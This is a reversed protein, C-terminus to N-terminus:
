RRIKRRDLRRDRRREHRSERARNRDDRTAKANRSDDKDAQNVTANETVAKTEEATAITTMSGLMVLAALCILTREIM